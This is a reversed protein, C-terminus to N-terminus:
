RQAEGGHAALTARKARKKPASPTENRSGHRLSTASMRTVSVHPRMLCRWLPLRLLILLLSLLGATQPVQHLPAMEWKALNRLPRLFLEAVLARLASASQSRCAEVQVSMAVSLILSTMATASASACIVARALQPLLLSRHLQLKQLRSSSWPAAQACCILRRLLHRFAHLQRQLVGHYVVFSTGPLAARQQRSLCASSIRFRPQDFKSTSSLM